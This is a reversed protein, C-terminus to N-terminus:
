LLLHEHVLLPGVLRCVDFFLFIILDIVVLHDITSLVKSLALVVGYPTIVRLSRSLLGRGAGIGGSSLPSLVGVRIHVIPLHLIM